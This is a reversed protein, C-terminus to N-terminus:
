LPYFVHPTSDIKHNIHMKINTGCYECIGSQTTPANCNPCNTPLKMESDDTDQILYISSSDLETTAITRFVDDAHMMSMGYQVKEVSHGKFMPKM